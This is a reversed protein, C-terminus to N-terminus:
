LAPIYLITPNHIKESMSVQEQEDLYSTDADRVNFVINVQTGVHKKSMIQLKAQHLVVIESCIALGLGAGGNARARSKDVMYFAETLRGVNEEESGCGNDKIGM